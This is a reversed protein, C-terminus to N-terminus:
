PGPNSTLPLGLYGQIQNLYTYLINNTVFPALSTKTSSTDAIMTEIESIAVYLSGTNLYMYLDTTYNLVNQTQGAQTIGAMINQTAFQVTLSQGFAIANQVLTTYIQTPTQAQPATSPANWSINDFTWGIGPQPVINDIQIVSDYPNGNQDTEFLSVLSADDLVITNIIIKNTIQAYIM